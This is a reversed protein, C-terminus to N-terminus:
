KIRIRNYREEINQKEAKEIFALYQNENLDIVSEYVMLIRKLNMIGFELRTLSTTLSVSLVKLKINKKLKSAQSQIDDYYRRGKNILRIRELNKLLLKKYDDKLGELTNQNLPINMDHYNKIKNNLEMLISNTERKFEPLKTIIDKIVEAGREGKDKLYNLAEVMQKFEEEERKIDREPTILRSISGSYSEDFFKELRYALDNIERLTTRDSIVAGENTVFVLGSVEEKTKGLFKKNYVIERFNIGNYELQCSIKEGEGLKKYKKATDKYIGDVKTFFEM